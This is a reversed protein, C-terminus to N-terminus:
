YQWNITITGVVGGVGTADVVTWSSTQSGPVWPSGSEPSKVAIGAFCGDLSPATDTADLLINGTGDSPIGLVFTGGFGLENVAEQAPNSCPVFIGEEPQEDGYLTGTVGTFEYYCFEKTYSPSNCDAAEVGTVAIKAGGNPLYTAEFYRPVNVSATFAIPYAGTTAPAVALTFKGTATVGHKDTVTVEFTSEGTATPTGAIVGTARDLELGPPLAGSTKEWTYPEEGGEATLTEQYPTGETADSLTAPKITLAGTVTLSYKASETSGLNDKVTVEFTSNGSTTPTGSIVGTASDLTLGQPLRGSTVAWSYPQKGGTVTLPEYYPTGETADALDTPTISMAEDLTFTHEYIKLPGSKLKLPPVVLEGTLLVPATLKWWPTASREAALNLGGRLSIKPGAIGDILVLITPTLNGAVDGSATLDPPTFQLHPEFSAIPAFGGAKTWGIGASASFGTDVSTSTAAEAHASGDVYVTVQPTIVIPIVGDVLFRQTPLNFQSVTTSRLSCTLAGQIEAELGGTASANATLSASQLGGLLTWDATLAMSASFGAEAGFSALASGMCSFRPKAAARARASQASISTDISGNSAAELLTAPVTEVITEGAKMTVSTARGLFGYPTALGQGVAIVQGAKVTNGGAYVLQGSDGPSPVSKVASPELVIAHIGSAIPGNARGVRLRRASSVAVVRGSRVAVVRVVSVGQRRQAQFTLAFVGASTTTGSAVTLWRRGSKRQARVLITRAPHVRGGVSALSGASVSRLASVTVGAQRAQAATVALAFICALCAAFTAMRALVRDRGSGM